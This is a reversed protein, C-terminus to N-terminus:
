QNLIEYAKEFQKDTTDNAQLPVVVDPEIGVGDIFRGNATKYKAVTLKVANGEDIPYIGQVTGKGYSKVGVITGIKLDQVAGAVIEAASATNENILVVMPIRDVTGDATFDTEKGSRDVYSVITSHPPVFNSSVTVAQDVLGGPNNRLDLIMKGMGQQRLSQYLDTFEKGTKESFIAVRIYGIDTGPILQGGVTKLQIQSRVLEKTYETGKHSLVLTVTSGVPGRIDQAIQEIDMENAPKGDIAIIVDGRQIGAEKAPSDDVVEVVFPGQDNKGLYIGVGAYSASTQNAFSAYNDGDLYISHKDSLKAVIGELAGNLLKEKDIEGAYRSEVISFTRVLKFFGTPSGTYYYSGLMFVTISCLIASFIWAGGYWLFSVIKKYKIKM